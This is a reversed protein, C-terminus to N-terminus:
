KTLKYVAFGMGADSIKVIQNERFSSIEWPVDGSFNYGTPSLVYLMSSGPYNEQDNPHSNYIFELPYRLVHGRTDFDNIVAVNYNKPGDNAIAAAAKMINPVTLDAPMGTPKNLSVWGSEFNLVLYGILLGVTLAKHRRYLKELFVALVIFVLPVIPLLDYYAFGSFAKGRFVDMTYGALTRFHYFDHRIDFLLLPLNPILASIIFIIGTKLRKVAYKCILIFTIAAFILYLYELSFGIGTLLGLIVAYKYSQRSKFEYLFYYTLIGVLPLYNLIWIFLSHYIMLYNFLFLILAFVATKKSHIKKVLFFLVLGTTINLFTFWATIPLIEFKFIIQPPILSYTFLSGSFIKHGDSTIRQVNEQGLLSFKGKIMEGSTILSIAQEPGFTVRNSFNYFRVLIALALIVFFIVNEKSIIKEFIKKM